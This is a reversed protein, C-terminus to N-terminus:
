LSFRREGFIFKEESDAARATMKLIQHTSDIAAQPSSVETM